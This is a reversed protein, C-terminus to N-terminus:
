RGPAHGGVLFGLYRAKGQLADNYMALLKEYNDERTDARTIRYLNVLEDIFIMM